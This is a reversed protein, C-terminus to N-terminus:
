KVCQQYGCMQKTPWKSKIRCFNYWFSKMQSEANRQIHWREDQLSSLYTTLSCFLRICRRKNQEWLVLLLKIKNHTDRRRLSCLQQRNLMTKKSGMLEHWKRPVTGSSSVSRHSSLLCDNNGEVEQTLIGSSATCAVDVLHTRRPIQVGEQLWLIEAKSVTM